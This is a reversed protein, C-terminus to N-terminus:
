AANFSIHWKIRNNNTAEVKKIFLLPYYKGAAWFDIFTDYFKSGPNGSQGGPYLGYAEVTDTLHVIMRWSPGHEPKTANISYSGGGNIVHLKSLADIKTLHLVKTDKFKGWALKHEKDLTEALKAVRKFAELAIHAMTEKVKPTSINDAFLYDGKGKILAELLTSEYPKRLPLTSLAYEDNYVLTITTDWWHKFITAGESEPTNKLNWLKVVDFYQKEKTNLKSIDILSLLVPMAEQAFMNDDNTQMLQMDGVTINQMSGLKKNIILGRYVPFNGAEGLYYPYTKDVAMQNASSVFGRLPNFMQANENNPIIGQWMYSSDAGPMIFEGQHPWKAVFAGQQRIAIDGTKSAFVFNQGPCQYTSIADVYDSYNKARDLKYFTRLENSADHAKWKVAYYKQPRSTAPYSKDYMVPGFVTIAITEVVDPKGKVKIIEKRFDSKKWTGNFWYEQMTSDKFQIEYFDKVDRGANTVGWACSDNFGIIVTPSGPFSAGYTSHSPTTIQVEYWLSPLNLGLHPDNCLIPKGSKTKSGAVAWNNSGNDKDPVIPLNVKFSDSNGIYLSDYSAPAKVTISPKAFTSGKPIIPDLSDMVDPFLKRYTNIGFFNKTNTHLFDDEGGGALDFSMLKLFLASKLNTWPEPKYNMLKYEFPIDTPKLQNIYSNIGATYADMMTKIEADAEMAKLSNEAGYLLGLRRLYKDTPLKSEDTIESLRGAAIYTQFEMQWLRFKAHLFGQVFYADADNVAYIHPVLRDDFYVETTNKIGKIKINDNFSANAPEANQWFGTQPSLFYGLRPSKIKGLPLQVNLATVLAITIVASISFPVYRM